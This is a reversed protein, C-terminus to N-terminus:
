QRAESSYRIIVKPDLKTFSIQYYKITFAFVAEIHTWKKDQRQYELAYKCCTKGHSNESYMAFKGNCAAEEPRNARINYKRVLIRVSSRALFKNIKM